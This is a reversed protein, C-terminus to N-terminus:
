SKNQAILELARTLRENESRLRDILDLQRQADHLATRKVADVEARLRALEASQEGCIRYYSHQNGEGRM